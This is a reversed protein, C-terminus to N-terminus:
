GYPNKKKKKFKRLKKLLQKMNMMILIQGVMKQKKGGFNM